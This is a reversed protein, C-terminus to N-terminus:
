PLLGQPAAREQAGGSYPRRLHRRLRPGGAGACGPIGRRAAARTDKHGSFGHGYIVAHRVARPDDAYLKCRVSCGAENIDFYKEM